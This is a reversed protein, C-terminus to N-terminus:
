ERCTDIVAERCDYNDQGNEQARNDEFNPSIAGVIILDWSPNSQHTMTSNSLQIQEADCAM